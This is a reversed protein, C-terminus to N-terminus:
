KKKRKLKYKSKKDKVIFGIQGKKKDNKLESIRMRELAGQPYVSRVRFGQETFANPRGRRDGGWSSIVIQSKLNEYEEDSFKFMFDEPSRKINRKVAQNFVKTQVGYLKASDRDLIVKQKRIMLINGAIVEVPILDTQKKKAM